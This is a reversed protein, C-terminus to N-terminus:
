DELSRFVDLSDSTVPEGIAPPLWPVARKGRWGWRRGESQLLSAFRLQARAALGQPDTEEVSVHMRASLKHKALEVSPM